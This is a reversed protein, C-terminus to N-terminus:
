DIMPRDDEDPGVGLICADDSRETTTFYRDLRQSGRRGERRCLFLEIKDFNNRRHTRRRGSLEDGIGGNTPFIGDYPGLGDIRAPCPAVDCNETSIPEYLRALGKRPGDNHGHINLENSRM